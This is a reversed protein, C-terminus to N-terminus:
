QKVAFVRAARMGRRRNAPGTTRKLRDGFFHDQLFNKVETPPERGKLVPKSKLKKVKVGGAALKEDRGDGGLLTRKGRYSKSARPAAVVLASGAESDDAANDNDAGGDAIAALVDDDLRKRQRKRKSFSNFYPLATACFCPSSHTTLCPIAAVTTQGFLGRALSLQIAVVRARAHLALLLTDEIINM